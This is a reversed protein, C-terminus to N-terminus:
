SFASKIRSMFGKEPTMEQELIKPREGTPTEPDPVLFLNDPKLDRHVIGKAHAAALANCVSRLLLAAEGESMRETLLKLRRALSMGDLFEMVLDAHGSPMALGGCQIRM